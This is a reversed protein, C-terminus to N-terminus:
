TNVTHINVSLRFKVTIPTNVKKIDFFPERVAVYISKTIKM